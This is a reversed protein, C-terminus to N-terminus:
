LSFYTSIIMERLMQNCMAAYPNCKAALRRGEVSGLEAAQEFLPLAAQEDGEMAMRIWGLQMLSARKVAAWENKGDCLEIAKNLDAIALDTNTKLLRYMQARNNHPSPNDPHLTILNTLLDIAQQHAGSEFM